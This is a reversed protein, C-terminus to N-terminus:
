IAEALAALADALALIHNAGLPGHTDPSKLWAGIILWGGMQGETLAAFASDVTQEWRHSGRCFAFRQGQPNDLDLRYHEALEADTVTIVRAGMDYHVALEHGDRVRDLYTVDYEWPARLDRLPLPRIPPGDEPLRLPPLADLWNRASM